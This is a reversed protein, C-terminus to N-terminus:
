VWTRGTLPWNSDRRRPSQPWTIQDDRSQSNRTATRELPSTLIETYVDSTDSNDPSSRTASKKRSHKRAHSARPPIQPLPGTPPPGPPPSTIASYDIERLPSQPPPSWYAAVSPRPRHAHTPPPSLYQQRPRQEGLGADESTAAQGIIQQDASISSPSEKAIYSVIARDLAANVHVEDEQRKKEAQEEEEQKKKEEREQQKTRRRLVFVYFGLVSLLTSGVISAVVAGAVVAVSM